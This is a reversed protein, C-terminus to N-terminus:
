YKRLRPNLINELNFGVLAFGFGILFLLIAPEITLHIYGYRLSDLNLALLSGWTNGGTLEGGMLFTLTAQLFSYAPIGIVLQPILMTIIRPLMYHSVIRMKSAGYAHAAEVYVSEKAQLFIARYEKLVSGFINILILVGMVLWSNNTYLLAVMLAIPFTPILTKIETLRQILNDVGGGFTIAIAALFMAGLNVGVAGLIGYLLTLPASALLLIGMDVGDGNTGAIGYVKGPIILEADVTSNPEYVTAIIQLTYTGQLPISETRSEDEFLTQMPPYVGQGSGWWTKGKDALVNFLSYTDHTIAGEVLDIQKGDPRIWVMTMKPRTEQYDTSFLVTVEEPFVTYPY